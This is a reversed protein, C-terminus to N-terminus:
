CSWAGRGETAWIKAACNDQGGPTSLDCGHAAATSPLIQYAGYAGSSPNVATYSGGSECSVISSPIAYSGGSKYRAAPSLTGAPVQRPPVAVVRVYRTVPPRNLNRLAVLYRKKQAYRAPRVKGNSHKVGFRCINRGPARKGFKKVVAARVVYAKACTNAHAPATSTAVVTMTAVCIMTRRM